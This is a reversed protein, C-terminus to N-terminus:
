EEGIVLNIKKCKSCYYSEIEDGPLVIKEHREQNFMNKDKEKESVFSVMIQPFGPIPMLTSIGKEMEKKCYVCKM